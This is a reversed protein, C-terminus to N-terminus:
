SVTKANAASANIAKQGGEFGQDARAAAAMSTKDWNAPDSGQDEYVKRFDIRPGKGKHPVIPEPDPEPEKAAVKKKAKKKPEAVVTATQPEFDIDEMDTQNLAAHALAKLVNHEEPTFSQETSKMTPRFLSARDKELLSRLRDQVLLAVDDFETGPILVSLDAKILTTLYQAVALRTDIEEINELWAEDTLVM